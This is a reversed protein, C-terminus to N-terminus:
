VAAKVRAATRWTHGCHMCLQGDEEAVPNAARCVPCKTRPEGRVLRRRDEETTGGWIGRESRDLAHRLCAVRVPCVACFNSITTDARLNGITSDAISDGDDYPFFDDPDAGACVADAQWPRTRPM